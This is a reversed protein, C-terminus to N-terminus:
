KNSAHRSERYSTSPSTCWADDHDGGDNLVNNLAECLWWQLDHWATDDMEDNRVGRFDIIYHSNVYEWDTILQGQSLDELMKKRNLQLVGAPDSPLVKYTFHDYEGNLADHLYDKLCNSFAIATKYLGKADTIAQFYRDGTLLPNPLPADEPIENIWKEHLSELHNFSKIYNLTFQDLSINDLKNLARGATYTEELLENIEHEFWYTDAECNLPFRFWKARAFTNKSDLLNIFSSLANAELSNNHGIRHQLENWHEAMRCAIRLMDGPTTPEIKRIASLLGNSLKEKRHLMAQLIERTIKFQHWAGKPPLHEDPLKPPLYYGHVDKCISAYAILLYNT